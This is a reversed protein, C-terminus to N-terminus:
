RGAAIVDHVLDFAGEDEVTPSFGMRVVVLKESPVVFLWQGDHGQAWYADAPIRDDVIRGDAGTNARWGAAYNPEEVKDVSKVRVSNQMWGEPLLRKGQYVGDDLAFQGLAAWERPRAWLYSSCVPTGVADAEWIANTLGLPKFLEQRPLDAHVGVRDALVQCMLTTSGSSYQQFTGIPHALKQSAVYSGMDPELYLMRTIPTGLDYTEDWALGSTMRMLDDITIKARGDTWEPRLHDDTLKVKGELVLRGLLMNAISKSMSWGLQPTDPGFGKGYAEAVIQGDRVVLVARTGLAKQESASMGVGFAKDLAPQFKAPPGEPVAAVTLPNPKDVVTATGLDPAEKALTCGFGENFWATQRSWVGLISGRMGEPSVKDARLVPVLPNPPLDSEPDKRGAINHVACANHAAYGTGTLLMPREYWYGGVLAVLVLLLLSLLIRRLLRM